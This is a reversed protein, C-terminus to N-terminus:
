KQRYIFQVVSCVPSARGDILFPRYRWMAIANILDADYALFGSSKLVKVQIVRGDRDLCMMVPVMLQQRGSRSIEVKVFDSPLINKDGAVRLSELAM